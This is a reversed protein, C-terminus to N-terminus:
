LLATHERLYLREHGQELPVAVAHHVGQSARVDGALLAHRTHQLRAAAASTDGADEVLQEAELRLETLVLHPLREDRGDLTGAARAREVRRPAAGFVERRDVLQRLRGLPEAADGSWCSVDRAIARTRTTSSSGSMRSSTRM